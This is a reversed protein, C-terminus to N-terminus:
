SITREHTSTCIDSAPPAIEVIARVFAEPRGYFAEHEVRRMASGHELVFGPFGRLGIQQMLQRTAQIHEDVAVDRFAQDFAARNLGIKESLESLILPDVVRRGFVYHAEQIARLMKFKAGAGVVAAALVAAITPRSWLIADANTLLGGLYAAGFSLGTLAAIREDNERIYNSKEASLSTPVDWLGGGHLVIDLGADRVAEVLPAAAYCWGCLPDYVYHLTRATM